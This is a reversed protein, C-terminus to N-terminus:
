NFIPVAGFFPLLFVPYDGLRPVVFPMEPVFVEWLFLFVVFHVDQEDFVLQRLLM